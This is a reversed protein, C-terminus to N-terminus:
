GPLSGCQASEVPERLDLLKQKYKRNEPNHAGEPGTVVLAPKLIIREYKLWFIFRWNLTRAPTDVAGAPSLPSGSKELELKDMLQITQEDLKFFAKMDVGNPIVHIIEKNVDSLRSLEQKGTNQFSWM